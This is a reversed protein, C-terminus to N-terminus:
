VAADHLHSLWCMCLESQKFTDQDKVERGNGNCPACTLPSAAFSAACHYTNRHLFTCKCQNEVQLTDILPLIFTFHLLFMNFKNWVLDKGDASIFLTCPPLGVAQCTLPLLINCLGVDRIEQSYEAIDQFIICRECLYPLCGLSNITCDILYILPMSIPNFSRSVASVRGSQAPQVQMHEGAEAGFCCTTRFYPGQLKLTPTCARM